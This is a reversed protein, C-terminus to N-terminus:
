DGITLGNILKLMELRKLKERSSIRENVKDKEDM